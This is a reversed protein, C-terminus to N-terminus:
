TVAVRLQSTDTSRRLTFDHSLGDIAKRLGPLGIIRGDEFVGVGCGQVQQALPVVFRGVM